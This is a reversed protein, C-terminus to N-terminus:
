FLEDEFILQVEQKCCENLKRVFKKYKELEKDCNEEIERM